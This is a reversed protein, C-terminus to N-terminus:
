VILGAEKEIKKYSDTNPLCCEVLVLLVDDSMPVGVQGLSRGATPQGSCEIVMGMFNNTDAWLM